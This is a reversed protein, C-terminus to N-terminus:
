IHILPKRRPDLDQKVRAAAESRSKVRLKLLLSHVHNKVTAVEIHLDTAIEKNTLGQVVLALIQRERTTLNLSAPTRAEGQGPAAVRRFLAAAIRPPLHLDGRVVTQIATVLEDLPADDSVYARVGAEACALIDRADDAIAFAVLQTAPRLSSVLKLIQHSDRSRVDLLLIDPAIETLRGSVESSGALGVITGIVHRTLGTILQDRYLRVDTVLLVTLSSVGM